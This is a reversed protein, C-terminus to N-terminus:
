EIITYNLLLESNTVDDANNIGEVILGRGATDTAQFAEVENTFPKDSAVVKIFETGFPQTLTFSFPDDSDPISYTRNAELRKSPSFQNPFILQMTGHVDIHYIRIYCAKKSSFYIKLKEGTKYVPGEGRSFWAKIGLTNSGSNHPNVLAQETKKAFDFNAPQVALENPLASLPVLTEIANTIMGTETSVLTVYLKITNNEQFFRGNLLAEISGLNGIEISRDTDSLDSLSLEQADLIEELKDKAFVSFSSSTVLVRTLNERIYFSLASGTKSDGYYFNGISITKNGETRSELEAIITELYSPLGRSQGRIGEAPKGGIMSLYYEKKEEQLPNLDAFEGKVPFSSFVKAGYETAVKIKASPENDKLSIISNAYIFDGVGLASQSQSVKHIFSGEVKVIVGVVNEAIASFATTLCFIGVLIRNM